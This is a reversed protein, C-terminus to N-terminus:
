LDPTSQCLTEGVILFLIIREVTKHFSNSSSLSRGAELGAVINLCTENSIQFPFRSRVFLFALMLQVTSMNM